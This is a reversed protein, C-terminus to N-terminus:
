QGVCNTWHYLDWRASVVLFLHKTSTLIELLEKLIVSLAAIMQPDVPSLEQVLTERSGPVTPRVSPLRILIKDIIM